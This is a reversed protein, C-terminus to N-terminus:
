PETSSKGQDIESLLSRELSVALGLKLKPLAPEWCVLSYNVPAPQGVKGLGLPCQVHAACRPLTPNFFPQIWCYAVVRAAALFGVDEITKPGSAYQCVSLFEADRDQGKLLSFIITLHQFNLNLNYERLLVSATIM